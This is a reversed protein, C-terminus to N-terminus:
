LTKSVRGFLAFIETLFDLNRPAISFTPTEIPVGTEFQSSELERERWLRIQNVCHKRNWGRDFGEGVREKRSSQGGRCSPNSDIESRFSGLFEECFATVYGLGRQSCRSNVWNGGM